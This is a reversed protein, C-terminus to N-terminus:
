RDRGRREEWRDAQKDMFSSKRTGTKSPSVKPGRGRPSGQGREGGSAGSSLMLTVAWVSLAFGLVGILISLIGNGLSVGVLVLCMGLLLLAVGAGIRRPSPRTSIRETQAMSSALSPDEANLQQEMDRLIQQERESLGM